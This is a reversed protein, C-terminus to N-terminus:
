MPLTGLLKIKPLASHGYYLDAGIRIIYLRHTNSRIWGCFIRFVILPTLLSPFSSLALAPM